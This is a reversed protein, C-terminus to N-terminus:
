SGTSLSEDGNLPDLEAVQMQLRMSCSRNALREKLYAYIEVAELISTIHLGEKQWM